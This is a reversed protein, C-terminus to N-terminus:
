GGAQLAVMRRWMSRGLRGHTPLTWLSESLRTAGPFVETRNLRRSGFGTLAALTEPYGRAAGPWGSPDPAAGSPDTRLVPFRLWGATWGSPPSVELCGALAGRLRDANARRHAAEEPALSLTRGLVGAALTSMAGASRPPHYITEGLGLAPISAPIWYLAPRGFLWQALLMTLDKLSGRQELRRPGHEEWTAAAPARWAESNVLLAGGRGGTVGKGRGFSLVGLVGFSGAPRGKWNCGSAQAADEIVAAGFEAALAQVSELDVPVGYLHAVVVSGAGAELARRLSALDPSLTGVDLDYLHFPVGAADAATAIDFCCYAPLAVPAGTASHVARLALALASTGSDTLYLDRPAYTERLARELRRRVEEGDSLWAARAGAAIAGFTLPSWVPLQRLTRV